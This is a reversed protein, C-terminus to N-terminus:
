PTILKYESPSRIAMILLTLKAGFLAIVPNSTIPLPRLILETSTELVVEGIFIHPTALLASANTTLLATTGDVLKKLDSWTLVVLLPSFTREFLPILRPPSRLKLM